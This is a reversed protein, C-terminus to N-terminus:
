KGMRQLWEHVAVRILESVGTDRHGEARLEVGAAKLDGLMTAPMTITVKLILVTGANLLM